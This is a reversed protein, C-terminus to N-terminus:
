MREKGGRLSVFALGIKSGQGRPEVGVVRFREESGVVLETHDSHDGDQKCHIEKTGNKDRFDVNGHCETVKGYKELHPRYFALVKKPEDESEFEAAVVKLGFFATAISVNAGSHDKDETRRAGPYEPLGIEKVDIEEKSRVKLEGVPTTIEVRKDKGETKESVQLGCGTAALALALALAFVVTRGHNRNVITM